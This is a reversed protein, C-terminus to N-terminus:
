IDQCTSFFRHHFSQKLIIFLGDMIPNQFIHLHMSPNNEKDTWNRQTLGSAADFTAADFIQNMNIIFLIGM